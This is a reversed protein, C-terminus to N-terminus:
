CGNLSINIMFPLDRQQLQSLAVVSQRHKQGKQIKNLKTCHGQLTKMM